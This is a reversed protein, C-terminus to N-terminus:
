ATVGHVCFLECRTPRNINGGFWAGTDLDGLEFAPENRRSPVPDPTRKKEFVLLCAPHVTEGLNFEIPLFVADLAPDPKALNRLLADDIAPSTDHRKRRAADKGEDPPCCIVMAGDSGTDVYQAGSPWARRDRRDRAYPGAALDQEAEGTPRLDLPNQFRDVGYFFEADVRFVNRRGMPAMEVVPDRNTLTRAGIALLMVM